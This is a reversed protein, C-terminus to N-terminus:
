PPTIEYNYTQGGGPVTQEACASSVINNSNEMFAYLCYKTCLVTSNDCSSGTVSLGDYRYAWNVPEAPDNPIETLYTRSGTGNTLPSSVTISIPYFGQDAHYQQLASQIVKLDSKRKADRSNKQLNSFTSLSIAALLAIISIVILLEILTFGKVKKM